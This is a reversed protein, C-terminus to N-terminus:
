RSCMGDRSGCDPSPRAMHRPTRTEFVHYQIQQPPAVFVTVVWRIAGGDDALEKGSTLAM